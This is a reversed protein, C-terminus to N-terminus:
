AQDALAVTMGALAFGVRRPQSSITIPVRDHATRALSQLRGPRALVRHSLGSRWRQPMLAIIRDARRATAPKDSRGLLEGTRPMRFEIVSPGDALLSATIRLVGSGDPAGQWVHAELQGNVLVLLEEVLGTDAFGVVDVEIVVPAGATFPIMSRPAPSPGSWRWATRGRWTGRELPGWDLAREDDGPDMRQAGVLPAVAVPETGRVHAFYRPWEGVPKTDVEDHTITLYRNTRRASAVADDVFAAFRQPDSVTALLVEQEGSTPFRYSLYRMASNPKIVTIQGTPVFVHGGTAANLLFQSDIPRKNSGPHGWVPVPEPLDRLHAVSSPPFLYRRPAQGDDADFLGTVWYWDSGVPGGFICGAVAFSASPRAEFAEVMWRLHDPHWIDDHGLYAIYRGRAVSWGLPNPGAQSGVREPLVLMRFRPGFDAVTEALGDAAPGDSVVLVEFDVGVQASISALTPAILAGRGYTAVVVSVAPAEAPEMPRGTGAPQSSEAPEAPGASDATGLM